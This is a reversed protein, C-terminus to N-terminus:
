LIDKKVTEWEGRGILYGYYTLAFHSEAGELHNDIDDESDEKLLAQKFDEDQKALNYLHQLKETM